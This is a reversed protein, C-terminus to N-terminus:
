FQLGPWAAPRLVPISGFSVELVQPRMPLFQNTEPHPCGARQRRRSDNLHPRAGRRRALLAATDNLLHVDDRKAAEFLCMCRGDDPTFTSRVYRIQTGQASMDRATAIALKQAGALDSMAIGKLEREVMYVTM